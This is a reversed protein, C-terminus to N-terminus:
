DISRLREKRTEICLKLNRKGNQIYSKVKKEDMKLLESIERYSRNEYYFQHICQKQAAKLLKICEELRKNLDAGEEDIPHMEQASEMFIYQENQWKEAKEQKSRDARLKMLCFNKTVVYLWGKFNDLEHRTVEDILKEFIGTVGDRADERNEFYKLCVGYVLHMYREYLMGLVEM